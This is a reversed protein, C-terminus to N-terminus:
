GGRSTLKKFIKKASSTVDAVGPLRNMINGFGGGGAGQLQSGWMVLGVATCFAPDAVKDIANSVGLPEVLAAPLRLKDKALEVLEPLKAGAGTFVIGAPLKGSREIKKLEDDVKDFIEEVRAEIIEALYKRSTPSSEQPEFEGLDIEDRKNVSKSRAVGHALKIQEAADISVRLSIALDATIHQSGIPIVATHIIDGEEFVALSTTSGGIDVVAVGLDKQRSTLAAEATALISLVIDEIEIGTRYICKTVNKVQASLGQIIQADVELRVGSMGVPDKISDQSDVTFAKPIVHLIEYNPPTAVTRAAEIAREVDGEQIEGDSRAIAIVGRSEQSLIHHGSIGVWAADVPSGIMREARELCASISSIADEISTITGKTIGEATSESAGIIHIQGDGEGVMQGIALRITTSGIDLGAIIHGAAM